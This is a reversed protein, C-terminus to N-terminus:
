LPGAVFSTIADFSACAANFSLGLLQSLNRGLLNILGRRVAPNKNLISVRPYNATDVWDSRRAKPSAPRIPEV